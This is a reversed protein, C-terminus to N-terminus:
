QQPQLGPEHLQVDWEGAYEDPEPVTFDFLKFASRVVPELM